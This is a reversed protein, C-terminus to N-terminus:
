LAQPVLTRMESLFLEVVILLLVMLSLLIVLLLLLLSLREVVDIRFHHGCLPCVRQNAELAGNFLTDGCGACRAWLAPGDDETVPVKYEELM